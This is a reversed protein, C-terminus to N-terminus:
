RSPSGCTHPARRPGPFKSLDGTLYVALIRAGNWSLQLSGEQSPAVEVVMPAGTATAAFYVPAGCSRCEGVPPASPTPHAPGSGGAEEPAMGPARPANGPGVIGPASSGGTLDIYGVDEPSNPRPEAEERGALEAPREREAVARAEALIQSVQQPSGVRGRGTCALGVVRGDSDRIPICAM